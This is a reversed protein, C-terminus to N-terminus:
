RVRYKHEEMCRDSRESQRYYSAKYRGNGVRRKNGVLMRTARKYRYCIRADTLEKPITSALTAMVSDVMIEAEVNASSYLREIENDNREILLYM